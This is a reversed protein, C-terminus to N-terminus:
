QSVRQVGGLVSGLSGMSGRLSGWSGKQGGGLGGRTGGDLELPLFLQNQPAHKKQHNM